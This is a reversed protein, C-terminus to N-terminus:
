YKDCPFGVKQNWIGLEGINVDIPFDRAHRETMHPSKSAVVRSKPLAAIRAYMESALVM